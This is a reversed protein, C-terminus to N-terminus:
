PKGEQFGIIYKLVDCLTLIVENGVQAYDKSECILYKIARNNGRYM